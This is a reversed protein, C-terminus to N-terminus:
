CSLMSVQQMFLGFSRFNLIHYKEILIV